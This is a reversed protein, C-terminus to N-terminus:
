HPAFNSFHLAPWIGKSVADWVADGVYINLRVPVATNFGKEGLLQPESACIQLTKSVQVQGLLLKDLECSWACRVKITLHAVASFPDCRSM